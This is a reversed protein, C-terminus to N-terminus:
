AVYAWGAEGQREATTTQKEKARVGSGVLFWLIGATKLAFFSTGSVCLILSIYLAIYIRFREGRSDQMQMMWIAFWLVVVLLVSLRTLIYPYGMDYFSISSGEIGLLMPVTFSLLSRGSVFLRGLINDAYQGHYFLGILVLSAVCIVPLISVAFNLKRVPIARLLLMLSVAGIGYRSDSLTIMVVATALFFLGNKWEARTKALGWAAVIVAFNGLSVPELFISSVRHNGLLSPLITRGIGEPRMGNLNLTSGSIFNSSVTISGQNFYYSFINFLSSYWDLFFFEFFGFALVMWILRRLIKDAYAMDAIKQGLWYFLIPIMVDRFGKLELEGRFISLMLLYATVLVAVIVFEVRVRRILVALCGLYVLFEALAVMTANVQFFHTHILCLAAQYTTAAFLILSVAGTAVAPQAEYQASFPLSRWM